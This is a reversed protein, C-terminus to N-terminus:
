LKLFSCLSLFPFLFYIFYFASRVPVRCICCFICKLKRNWHMRAFFSVDYDEKKKKEKKKKCQVGSDEERRIIIVM